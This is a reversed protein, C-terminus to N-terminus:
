APGDLPQARRHPSTELGEPSELRIVIQVREPGALLELLEQRFHFRHLFVLWGLVTM